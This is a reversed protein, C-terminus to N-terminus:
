YLTSLKEDSHAPYCFSLILVCLNMLGDHSVTEDDRSFVKPIQKVLVLLRESLHRPLRWFSRSVTCRRWFPLFVAHGQDSEDDLTTEIMPAKPKRPFWPFSLTSTARSLDDGLPTFHKPFPKFTGETENRSGVAWFYTHLVWLQFAELQFCYLEVRGQRLTSMIAFECIPLILFKPISKQQEWEMPTSGPPWCDNTLVHQRM